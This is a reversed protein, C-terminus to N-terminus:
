LIGDGLGGSGQPGGLGGDDQDAAPRARSGEKIPHCVDSGSGAGSHQGLGEGGAQLPAGAAWGDIAEGVQGFERGHLELAGPM